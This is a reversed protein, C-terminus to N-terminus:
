PVIVKQGETLGQTIEVMADTAIGVKVAGGPIKKRFWSEYSSHIGL